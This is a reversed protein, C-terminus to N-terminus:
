GRALTLAYVKGVGTKKLVTAAAKLTSGTTVLDDVLIINKSLPTHDAKVSFVGHVNLYRLKRSKLQAQSPTSKTRELLNIKPMQSIKALFDTIVEAQNFGRENLRIKHLPLPNFLYDKKKENFYSLKNILIEPNLNQLLEYLAEKVLRYKINKIISKLTDNYYYISILGDIGNSRQCVPHTFGMFSPKSCYICYDYDLYSLKKHCKLCIYSGLSGCNLCLKPFLFDKWHM